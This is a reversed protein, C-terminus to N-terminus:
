FNCVQWVRITLWFTFAASLLSRPREFSLKLEFYESFKIIERIIIGQRYGKKLLSL